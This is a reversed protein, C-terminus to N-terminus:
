EEEGYKRLLALAREGLFSHSRRFSSKIKRLYKLSDADQRIEVALISKLLMVDEDDVDPMAQLLSYAQSGYGKRYLTYAALGLQRYAERGSSYRVAQRFYIVTKYLDGEDRYIRGLLYLIRYRNEDSLTETSTSMETLDKRVEEKRGLRLLLDSRLIRETAGGPGSKELVELAEEVRGAAILRNLIEIRFDRNGSALRLSDLFWEVYSRGEVDSNSRLAANGKLYSQLAPDDINWGNKIEEKLDDALKIISKGSGFQDLLALAEGFRKQDRLLYFLRWRAAGSMKRDLGQNLAQQYLAISRDPHSKELSYAEEFASRGEFAGQSHLRSPTLLLMPFLSFTFIYILSNISM